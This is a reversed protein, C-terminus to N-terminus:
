GRPDSLIARRFGPPRKITPPTLTRKFFFSSEFFHYAVVWSFRVSGRVGLFASTVSNQLFFLIIFFCTSKTLFLNPDSKFRFESLEVECFFATDPMQYSPSSPLPTRVMRPTHTSVPLPFGTFATIAAPLCRQGRTPPELVWLGGGGPPSLTM